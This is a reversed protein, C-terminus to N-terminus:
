CNRDIHYQSIYARLGGRCSQADAQLAGRLPVMRADATNLRAILLGHAIM